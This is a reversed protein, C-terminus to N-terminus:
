KKITVATGVLVIMQRSFFTPIFIPTMTSTASVKVAVVADANVLRAAKKLEFEARQYAQLFAVNASTIVFSFSQGVGVVNSIIEDIEGSLSEELTFVQLEEIATKKDSLEDSPASGLDLDTEFSLLNGCTKCTGDFNPIPSTCLCKKAM